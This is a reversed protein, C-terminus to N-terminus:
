AGGSDGLTMAGGADFSGLAMPLIIGLRLQDQRIVDEKRPDVGNFAAADALIAFSDISVVGRFCAVIGVADFSVIEDARVGETACM